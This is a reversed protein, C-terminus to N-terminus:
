SPQTLYMLLKVKHKLCLTFFLFAAYIKLRIKLRLSLPAKLVDATQKRYNLRSHAQRLGFRGQKFKKFFNATSM